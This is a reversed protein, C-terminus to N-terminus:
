IPLHARDICYPHYTTFLLSIHHLLWVSGQHSPSSPYFVSFLICQDRQYTCYFCLHAASNKEFDAIRKKKEWHTLALGSDAQQNISREKCIVRYLNTSFPLQKTHWPQKVDIPLLGFIEWFLVLLM